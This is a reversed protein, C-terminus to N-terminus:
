FKSFLSVNSDFSVVLLSIDKFFSFSKGWDGIGFSSFLFKIKFYLFHVPSMYKEKFPFISKPGHLKRGVKSDKQAMVIGIKRKKIKLESKRDLFIEDNIGIKIKKSYKIIIYKNIVTDKESGPIRKLYVKFFLIISSM